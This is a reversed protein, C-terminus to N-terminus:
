TESINSFSLARLREAEAADLGEDTESARRLGNFRVNQDATQLELLAMWMSSTQVSPAAPDASIAPMGASQFLAMEAEREAARYELTAAQQEAPIMVGAGAAVSEDATSFDLRDFLRELTVAKGTDRAYFLGPNAKAEKAAFSDARQAPSLEAAEILQAARSPGFVHAAYLEVQSPERGLRGAMQRQNEVTLEGAMRASIEPDKRLALIDARAKKDSVVPRGTSMDIKAAEGGLGHKDGYRSVVRLWTDDIFQFTGTASSTQAKVEPRLGSEKQAVELLYGFDVGSAGAGRRIATLTQTRTDIAATESL